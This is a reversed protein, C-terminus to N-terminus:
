QKWRKLQPIVAHTMETSKEDPIQLEKTMFDISSQMMEELTMNPKTYSGKQFCFKCYEKHQTGDANTGYGEPHGLPMGCSQCRAKEEM